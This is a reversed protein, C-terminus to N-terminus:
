AAEPASQGSTASAEEAARTTWIIRRPDGLILGSAAIGIIPGLYPTLSLIEALMAGAYWGALFWLAGALLRRNM